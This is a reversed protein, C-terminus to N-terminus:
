AGRKQSPTETTNQRTTINRQKRLKSKNKPTKRKGGNPLHNGYKATAARAITVNKRTRIGRAHAISTPKQNTDFRDAIIGKEDGQADVTMPDNDVIPVVAANEPDTAVTTDAVVTDHAEDDKM